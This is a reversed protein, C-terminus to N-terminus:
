WCLRGVTTQNSLGNRPEANRFSIAKKKLGHAANSYTIQLMIIKHIVSVSGLLPFHSQSACSSSEIPKAARINEKWRANLSKSWIKTHMIEIKLSEWSFFFTFENRKDWISYNLPNPPIDSIRFQSPSFPIPLMSKSTVNRSFELHFFCVQFTNGGNHRPTNGFLDANTCLASSITLCLPLEIRM